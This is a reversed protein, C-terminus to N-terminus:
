LKQRKLSQYNFKEFAARTAERLDRAYTALKKPPLRELKQITKREYEGKLWGAIESMLEREYIKQKYYRPMAIKSGGQLPIYMREKAKGHHWKLMPQSLYAAGLGKSMLAFEPTKKKWTGKPKCMYKLTYGVSAPTVQGYYISGLHKGCSCTNHEYGSKKGKLTFRKETCMWADQILELKANFLIIHYHPRFTKGGYEGCAYYKIPPGDAKEQAKRLRKFFIQLDRKFLHLSGKDSIPVHKNDYTLTIFHASESVKLEQLLRFSWGSVRKAKCKPCSSCPVSM